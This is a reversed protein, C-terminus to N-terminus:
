RIIKPIEIYSVVTNKEEYHWDINRGLLKNLAINPINIDAALCTMQLGGSMRTNIELLYPTDDKYKFQVNCPYELDIKNMISKTIQMIRDDYKVEEHRSTGKFRPIAILGKETKLCDVSVENGPLYPMVMLDDFKDVERLTGLYDEYLAEAGPYIRLRKFRDVSDVIRRYSMAGEDKVFKVCVQDFEKRLDAYANEFESANNVMYYKPICIGECDRLYEYSAAKDNLLKITSYKDVMVKVGIKEFLHLNKSIDVMNHRPVFVDIKHEKCFELCYEIYEDGNANSERYWEDCVKQIVSDMQKNTAIVYVEESEDKKMLEILGYSTSFWHNFWVRVM